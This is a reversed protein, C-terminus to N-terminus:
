TATQSEYKIQKSIERKAKIIIRYLDILEPPCNIIGMQRLCKKVYSSYILERSKREHKKQGNVYSSSSKRQEYILNKKKQFRKRNRELCKNKNTEYYKKASKKRSESKNYIANYTNVKEARKVKSKMKIQVSREKNLNAWNRQYANECELCSGKKGDRNRKEAGFLDISKDVGCKNCKKTKM